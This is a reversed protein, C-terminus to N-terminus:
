VNAELEKLKQEVAAVRRHAADLEAELNKIRAKLAVSEQAVKGPGLVSALWTKAREKMDLAGMGIRGLAEQNANALDEVTRVNAAIINQQQSPSALPWGRIPTGQVPMEQGTRWADYADRYQKIWALPIRGARAQEDLSLFWSEVEKEIVDRTGVPTIKAFDVDRTSHVKREITAARDEIARREFTVYSPRQEKITMDM